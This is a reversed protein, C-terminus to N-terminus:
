FFEVLSSSFRDEIKRENHILVYIYIYIDTSYTGYSGNVEKFPRVENSNTPFTSLFISLFSIKPILLVFIKELPDGKARERKENRGESKKVM